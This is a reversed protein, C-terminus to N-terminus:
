FQYIIIMDQLKEQTEYLDFTLTFDTTIMIMDLMNMSKIAWNKKFFANSLSSSFPMICLCFM